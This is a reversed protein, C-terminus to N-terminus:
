IRSFSKGISQPIEEQNKLHLNLNLELFNEEKMTDLYCVIFEETEPTLLGVKNLHRFMYAYDNLYAPHTAILAYSMLQDFRKQTMLNKGKEDEDIGSLIKFSELVKNYNLLTCESTIRLGQKAVLYEFIYKSIIPNQVEYQTRGPWTIHSCALNFSEQQLCGQEYLDGLSNVVLELEEENMANLVRINNPDLQLEQFLKSCANLLEAKSPFSFMSEFWEDYSVTSGQHSPGEILFKHAENISKFKKEHEKVKEEDEGSHRDPHHELALKKYAKDIDNKTAGQQLELIRLAEQTDM